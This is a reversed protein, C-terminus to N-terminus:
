LPFCFGHRKLGYLLLSLWNARMSVMPISIEGSCFNSLNCLMLSILSSTWHITLVLLKGKVYKKEDAEDDLRIRKDSSGESKSSDDSVM